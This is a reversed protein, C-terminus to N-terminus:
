AVGIMGGARLGVYLAGLTVPALVLYLKLRFYKLQDFPRLMHLHVTIWILMTILNVAFIPVSAEYNATFLVTIFERRLVFLLAFVPVSFLALKHMVEVWLRLIARNNGTEKHRALDPNIASAFSTSLMGLLPVQFCGVSYIAFDAPDFYHSV